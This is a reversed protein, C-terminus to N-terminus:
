TITSIQMKYKTQKLEYSNYAYSNLLLFLFYTTFVLFYIYHIHIVVIYSCLIISTIVFITVRPEIRSSLDEWKKDM